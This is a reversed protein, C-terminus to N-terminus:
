LCRPRKCCYSLRDGSAVLRFPIRNDGEDADADADEDADEETDENGPLFDEHLGNAM